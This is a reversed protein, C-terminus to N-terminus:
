PTPGAAAADTVVHVRDGDGLFGAGRDVVADGAKLGEVVEIDGGSAAGTRVRLRHAIGQADVSFVYAYGDRQVIAAAPVMLAQAASTVIRGEVFAGAKLAGPAPLDAYMTGTRTSADLGPSVARVRGEVPRGDAGTLIVKAGTQVRALEAEALEARWELRGQRILRLLESGAAVVQGPQVLRKSIVGDDPARLDAFDRRLQVGDRQARTTAQRAQAQVLAARLEDLASASILQSKALAQGRSLNVEALKVGADAENLAAQAQRLDSDLTRHDLELLVQGKKVAQGVDVRLATVRVGSLEVGLQMEEWATVPGSAIVTRDIARLQARALTVTLSAAPAASAETESAPDKSCAALILCSAVFVTASLPRFAM